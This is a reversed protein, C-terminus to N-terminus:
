KGEKPTLAARAVCPSCKCGPAPWDTFSAVHCDLGGIEELAATLRAVEAKLAENEPNPPCPTVYTWAKHCAHIKAGDAGLPEYTGGCDPCTM